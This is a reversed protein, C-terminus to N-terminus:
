QAADDGAPTNAMHLLSHGPSSDSIVSQDGDATQDADQVQPTWSPQNLHVQHNPLLKNTVEHKIADWNVQHDGPPVQSACNALNSVIQTITTITLSAPYAQTLYRVVFHNFEIFACLVAYTDLALPSLVTLYFSNLPQIM